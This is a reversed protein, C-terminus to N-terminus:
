ERVRGEGEGSRDVRDESNVYIDIPQSGALRSLLGVNHPGM